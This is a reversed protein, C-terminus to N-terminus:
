ESGTLTKADKQIQAITKTPTLRHRINIQDGVLGSQLRACSHGCGRYLHRDAVSVGVAVLAGIVVQLLLVLTAVLLVAGGGILSASWAALALKEFARRPAAGTGSLDPRDWDEWAGSAVDLIEKRSRARRPHSLDDSASTMRRTGSTPLRRAALSNDRSASEGRTEARGKKAVNEQSSCGAKRLTQARRICPTARRDRAEGGAWANKERGANITRIGDPGSRTRQSDICAGGAAAQAAAGAADAAVTRIKHASRQVAKVIAKRAKAAVTKVMAKARRHSIPLVIGSPRAPEMTKM